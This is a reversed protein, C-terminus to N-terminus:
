QVVEGLGHAHRALGRLERQRRTGVALGPAALSRPRPQVGDVQECHRPKAAAIPRWRDVSASSTGASGTPCPIAEAASPAAEALAPPPRPPSPLRNPSFVAAAVTAATATTEVPATTASFSPM